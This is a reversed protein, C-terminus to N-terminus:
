LQELQTLQASNDLKWRTTAKNKIFQRCEALLPTNNTDHILLFLAADLADTKDHNIKATTFAQQGLALAQEIDGQAIAIKAKSLSAFSLRQWPKQTDLAAQFQGKEIFIDRAAIAARYYYHEYVPSYTSNISALYHNLKENNDKSFRAEIANIQIYHVANLGHLEIIQKALDVLSLAMDSQKNKYAMMSQTLLIDLELLKENSVRAKNLAKNLVKIGSIFEEKGMFNWSKVLLADAELQPLALSSFLSAAQQALNKSLEFQHQEALVKSQILLLLGKSLRNESYLNNTHSIAQSFQDAQLYQKALARNLLDDQPYKNFLVTLASLAAHESPITLFDIAAIKKILALYIEETEAATAGYIYDSWGRKAGQIHFRLAHGSKLDYHIKGVLWQSDNLSEKQWTEYPSDFVAKSEIHNLTEISQVQHTNTIVRNVQSKPLVNESSNTTIQWFLILALLTLLTVAILVLKSNQVKSHSLKEPKKSEEESPSPQTAINEISCQEARPMQTNATTNSTLPLQWQYGKKSFTKIAQSGFIGRLHSINQFIVQESVVRDRWITDLIDQKSHIKEPNEIFLALLKLAKDNLPIVEGDKTLVERECDFRFQNFSFEM